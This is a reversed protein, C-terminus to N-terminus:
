FKIIFKIVNYPQINNHAGGSGTNQTSVGTSAANVSVGTTGSNVSPTRATPTRQGDTILAGSGADVGGLVIDYTHSHGSDTVGHAHTPDTVAHSHAPIEGTVLTHTKAGGTQPMAGFDSDATLFGVPVRGALNPLNFTTSGDGVGYITAIASFLRAYTTRSVAQGNCELYGDPIAALPWLIVSGVFVFTAVDYWVGANDQTELVKLETNIYFSGPHAPSNTPRGATNGFPFKHRGSDGPAGTVAPLVQHEVELQLKLTSKDQRALTPYNRVLDTDAPKTVDWSSGPM